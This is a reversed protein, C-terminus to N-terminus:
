DKVVLFKIGIHKSKTLNENNNAYLITLKNDCFLKLPIENNDVIHLRMFFDM